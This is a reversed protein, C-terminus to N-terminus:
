EPNIKSEKLISSTNKFEKKAIFIVEKKGWKILKIRGNIIPRIPKCKRLISNVPSLLKSKSLLFIFVFLKLAKKVRIIIKTIIFDIGGAILQNIKSALIDPSVFSAHVPVPAQQVYM